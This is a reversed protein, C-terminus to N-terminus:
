GFKLALPKFVSMAPKPKGNWRLLGYADFEGIGRNSDQYRYVFVAQVWTRYRRQIYGFQARLDAAQAAESVCQINHDHCTTYGTEMIWFPKNAANHRVFQARVDEIRRTRDFNQYPQGARIPTLHTADNGYAHMAVGDFYRNLSPMARYMADVWWTFRGSSDHTAMDAELLLKVHRDVRRTAIATARVLRDYRGPDYVGANGNTFYPENLLEVATIASGKLRPNTKWFTGGVGYRHMLAAVFNAFPGPNTPVAWLSPAAWKPAGVVQPVTHMHREGLALMYHDYYRFDFHGRRPEIKNWYFADRFYSAGANKKMQNLAPGTSAGGDGGAGDALGVILPSHVAVVAKAASADGAPVGYASGCAAGGAVAAILAVVLLALSRTRSPRPLSHLRM